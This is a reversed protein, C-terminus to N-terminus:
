CLFSLDTRLIILDYTISRAELMPSPIKKLVYIWTSFHRRSYLIRQRPISRGNPPYSYETVLWIQKALPSNAPLKGMVLGAWQVSM